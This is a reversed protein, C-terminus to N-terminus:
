GNSVAAALACWVTTKGSGGDGALSTIQYRPMYDTILWEPTKEEARDMTVVDLSFDKRQRFAGKADAAYPKETKWGRNLAPFVTKELEQDTLPPVCKRGNEVRVAAKVAEDDLGKARLSGVLRVMTDTREGEPITEPEQFLQKEAAPGMLFSIVRNDAQAITIEGPGHKWAYRRGNPHLSPPAM